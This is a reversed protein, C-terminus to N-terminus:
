LYVHSSTCTCLILMTYIHIETAATILYVDTNNQLNVLTSIKNNNKVINM